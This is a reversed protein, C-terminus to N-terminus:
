LQSLQSHVVFLVGRSRFQIEILTIAFKVGNNILRGGDFGELSFRRFHRKAALKLHMTGKNMKLDFHAMVCRTDCYSTGHCM